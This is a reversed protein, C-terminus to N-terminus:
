WLFQLCMENNTADGGLITSTSGTTDYTCFLNLRDSAEITVWTAAAGDNSGLPAEKPVSRVAQYDFFYPDTPGIYRKFTGNHAYQEAWLKTGYLHMHDAYFLINISKGTGILEDLKKTNAYPDKATPIPPCPFGITYEPEGPPISIYREPSGLSLLAADNPRLEHNIYIKMATNDVLDELLLPNDYHMQMALNLSGTNRGLLEGAEEPYDFRPIGLAWPYIMQICDPPMTPCEWFGEPMPRFCAFMVAHHVVAVEGATVEYSVAHYSSHTPLTFSQCTYTTRQSPVPFDNINFELVMERPITANLVDWAGASRENEPTPEPAQAMMVFLSVLVIASIIRFSYIGGKALQSAPLEEKPSGRHASADPAAYKGSLDMVTDSDQEDATTKTVNGEKGGAAERDDAAGSPDGGVVVAGVGGTAITRVGGATDAGSVVTAVAAPPSPTTSLFPEVTGTDKDGVTIKAVAERRERAGSLEHPGIYVLLVPIVFYGHLVALVVVTTFICYMTGFMGSGALSLFSLGLFTSASSNFIASGVEMIALTVRAERVAQPSPKIAGSAGIELARQFAAGADVHAHMFAHAIHAVYDFSLGISMIICILSIPSLPIGFFALFGLLEIDICLIAGTVIAATRASTLFILSCLAVAVLAGVVTSSLETLIAQNLSAIFMIGPGFAIAPAVKAYKDVLARADECYTQKDAFNPVSAFTGVLVSSEIVCDWTEAEECDEYPRDFIIFREHLDGLIPVSMFEKLLPYFSTTRVVGDDTLEDPYEETVFDLFTDYWSYIADGGYRDINFADWDHTMDLIGQQGEVSSYNFGADPGKLM